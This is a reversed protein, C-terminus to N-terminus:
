RPAAGGDELLFHAIPDTLAGCDNELAIALDKM